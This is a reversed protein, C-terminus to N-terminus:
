ISRGNFSYLNVFKVCKHGYKDLVFAAHVVLLLILKAFHM